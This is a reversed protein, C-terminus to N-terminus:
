ITVAIDSPMLPGGRVFDGHEDFGMVTLGDAKPAEIRLSVQPKQQSWKMVDLSLEVIQPPTFHHRVDRILEPTLFSPLMITAETFRLAVKLREDLDSYEFRDIKATMKEDVGAKVAEGLRLSQCQRCDHYQACKLRVVETVVPDLARLRMTAAAFDAVAHDLPTDYGPGPGAAHPIRPDDSM